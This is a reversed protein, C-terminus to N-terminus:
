VAGRKEGRISEILAALKSITSQTLVDAIPLEVGFEDAIRGILQIIVLSHSGGVDLLSDDIGITNVDLKLIESWIMALSQEVENRPATYAGRNSSGNTANIAKSM